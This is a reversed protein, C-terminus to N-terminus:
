QGNKWVKFNHWAMHLVVAPWVLYVMQRVFWHIEFWSKNVEDTDNNFGVWIYFLYAGLLWLIMGNAVWIWNLM